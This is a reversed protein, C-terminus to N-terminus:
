SARGTYRALIADAIDSVTERAAAHGVNAVDLLRDDSRHRDSDCPRPDTKRPKAQALSFDRM